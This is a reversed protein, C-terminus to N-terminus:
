KYIFLSAHKVQILLCESRFKVLWLLGAEEVFWASRKLKKQLLLILYFMNQQGLFSSECFESM